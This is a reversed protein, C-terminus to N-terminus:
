STNKIEVETFLLWSNWCCFAAVTLVVVLVCDCSCSHLVMFLFWIWFVSFLSYLWCCCCCCCWVCMLLLLWVISVVIVVGCPALFCLSQKWVFVESPIDQKPSAVVCVGLFFFSACFLTLHPPAWLDYLFEGFGFPCWINVLNMLVCCFVSSRLRLGKQLFMFMQFPRWGFNTWFRHLFRKLARFDPEFFCWARLVPRKGVNRLLAM